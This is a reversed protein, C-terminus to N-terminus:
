IKVDSVRTKKPKSLSNSTAAVVQQLDLPLGEGGMKLEAM